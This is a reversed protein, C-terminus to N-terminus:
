PLPYCTPEHQASSKCVFCPMDKSPSYSRSAKIVEVKKNQDGRINGLDSAEHSRKLSADAPEPINSMEESSSFSKSTSNMNYKDVSSMFNNFYSQISTAPQIGEVKTSQDGRIGGPNVTGLGSINYNKLGTAPQIVEVKKNQNGMMDGDSDSTKLGGIICSEVSTAPEIVELKKNQDGRIDGPNSIMSGGILYNQERRLGSIYKVKLGPATQIMEVKKNQDGRINGPDNTELSKQLCAGSPEQPSPIDNSKITYTTAVASTAPNGALNYNNKITSITPGGIVYNQLSKAPLIMQLKKNQERRINGSNGPWQRNGSIINIKLGPAPQIMKNQDRRIDGPDSTKLSKQLCAGSPEQPSPSDNSKITYTTAVAAMTPDRAQSDNSKITYTTAVAATSPDRAQSDNSKITYTTAVAAMTPDRAQSDNSKITYTTAAAANNSNWAHSDNSQITYTTAVAATAPGGAQIVRHSASTVIEVIEDVNERPAKPRASSPKSRKPRTMCERQMCRQKLIGPGGFKIKDLCYKCVSCDPRSCALCDCFM